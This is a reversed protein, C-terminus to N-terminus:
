GGDCAARLVPDDSSLRVWSGGQLEGSDSFTIGPALDVRASAACDFAVVINRTNLWRQLRYVPVIVLDTNQPHIRAQRTDVVLAQDIVPFLYAWPRLASTTAFTEAIIQGETVGQELRPFWAHENWIAMGIMAIGAFTGILWRPAADRTVRRLLMAAAAGCIGAVFVALLEFTM